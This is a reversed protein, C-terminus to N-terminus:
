FHNRGAAATRAVVSGKVPPFALIEVSLVSPPIYSLTHRRKRGSSCETNYNTGVPVFAFEMERSIRFTDYMVSIVIPEARSVCTVCVFWFVSVDHRRGRQSPCLFFM